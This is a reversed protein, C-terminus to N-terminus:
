NAWYGYCNLKLQEFLYEKQNNNEYDIDENHVRKHWKFYGKGPLGSKNVVLVNLLPLNAHFCDKGIHTLLKFLKPFLRKDFVGNNVETVLEKYGIVDGTRALSQLIQQINNKEM